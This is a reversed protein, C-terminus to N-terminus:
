RGYMATYIANIIFLYAPTLLLISLWASVYTRWRAVGMKTKLVTSLVHIYYVVLVIILLLVIPLSAGQTEPGTPGTASMGDPLDYTYQLNGTLLCMITRHRCSSHMVSDYHIFFDTSLIVFISTISILLAAGAVYLTCHLVGEVTINRTLLLKLIVYICFAGTLSVFIPFFYHIFDSFATQFIFSFAAEIALVAAVCAVFYNIARYLDDKDSLQIRDSFATSHFTMALAMPLISLTRLSQDQLWSALNRAM